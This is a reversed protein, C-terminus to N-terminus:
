RASRKKNRSACLPICISRNQDNTQWVCCRRSRSSFLFHRIDKKHILECNLIVKQMVDRGSDQSYFGFENSPAIKPLFSLHTVNRWLMARLSTLFYHILFYQLWSLISRIMLRPPHHHSMFEKFQRWCFEDILDSSCM